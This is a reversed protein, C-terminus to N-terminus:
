KIVNLAAELRQRVMQMATQKALEIDTPGLQEADFFPNCRLFWKTQDYGHLRTVVIRFDGAVAAWTRPTRDTKDRSHSSEDKWLM